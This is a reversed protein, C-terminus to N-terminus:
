ASLRPLNRACREAGALDAVAYYERGDNGQVSWGVPCAVLRGVPVGDSTVAFDSGVSRFALGAPEDSRDSM